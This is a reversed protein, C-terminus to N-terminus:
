WKLDSFRGRGRQAPKAIQGCLFQVMVELAPTCWILYQDVVRNAPQGSFSQGSLAKTKASM